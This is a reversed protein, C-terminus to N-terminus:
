KLPTSNAAAKYNMVPKKNQQQKKDTAKSQVSTFEILDAATVSGSNLRDGCECEAPHQHQHQQSSPPVSPTTLTPATPIIPPTPTIAAAAPIKGWVGGCVGASGSAVKASGAAVSGAAIATAAAVHVVTM